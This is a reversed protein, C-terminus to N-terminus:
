AKMDRQGVKFQLLLKKAKQLRDCRDSFETLVQIRLKFAVHDITMILICKTFIYNCKLLTFM